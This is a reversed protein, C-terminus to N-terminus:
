NVLIASLQQNHQHTSAIALAIVRNIATIVVMLLAMSVMVEIISFGCIHLERKYLESKLKQRQQMKHNVM